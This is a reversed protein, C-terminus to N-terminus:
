VAWQTNQKTNKPVFGKSFTALMDGDTVCSSFRNLVDKMPKREDLKSKKAPNQVAAEDIWSLLEPSLICQGDPINKWDLTKARAEARDLISKSVCEKSYNEEFVDLPLDSFDMDMMFSWSALDFNLVSLQDAPLSTFNGLYRM